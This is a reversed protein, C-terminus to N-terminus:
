GLRLTLDALAERIYEESVGSVLELGEASDLVFTLSDIAKKDRGM